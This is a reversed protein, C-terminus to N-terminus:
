LSEKWWDEPLSLVMGVVEGYNKKGSAIRNGKLYWDYLADQVAGIWPSYRKEWYVEKERLERMVDPRIRSVWEKFDSEDLMRYADRYIYPLLGFYGCYCVYRNESRLCVQYAWFNAEAENSVGLLHSLEHVYTFPYQVPLLEHNLHSEDFFPGMYGLVGVKSYLGNVLSRKPHQFNRPQTLGFRVPVQRYVAKIDQRVEEDSLAGGEAYLANLSDAFEYIFRHFRVEEYSVRAVGSRAFFDNRFYNMGWGWYFWVYIWVLAEAERGLIHWRGRRKRHAVFPYILLFLGFGIVTVECLSFPVVSALASLLTSIAPYLGRAYEEGAGPILRFAWVGIFLFALVAWRIYRVRVYKM